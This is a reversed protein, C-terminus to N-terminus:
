RQNRQAEGGQYEGTKMVMIIVSGRPEGRGKRIGGESAPPLSGQGVGGWVETSGTLPDESSKESKM